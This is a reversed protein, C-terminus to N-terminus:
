NINRRELVTTVDSLVKFRRKGLDATLGKGVVSLFPGTIKIRRDSTIRGTKENVVAHDTMITYGNESSGKLNGTLDIKKSHRSYIGEDGELELSTGNQPKIKLQFDHFIITMKDESFKVERADMIWKIQKEPDDHTYHIDKLKLGESPLIDKIIQEQITDKDIRAFYFSVLLLTAGAAILPWQKKIFDKKM